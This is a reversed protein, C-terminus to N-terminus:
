GARPRDGLGGLAGPMIFCQEGLADREGPRVPSAPVPDGGGQADGPLGGTLPEAALDARLLRATV